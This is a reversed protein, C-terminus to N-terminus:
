VVLTRLTLAPTKRENNKNLYFYNIKKHVAKKLNDNYVQFVLNM